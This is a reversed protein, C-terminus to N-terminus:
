RGNWLAFAPACAPEFGDIPRRQLNQGDQPAQQGALSVSAQEFKTLM